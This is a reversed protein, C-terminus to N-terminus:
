KDRSGVGRRARDRWRRSKATLIQPIDSAPVLGDPKKIAFLIRRSRLASQAFSAESRFWEYVPCGKPEKSIPLKGRDNYFSGSFKLAIVVVAKTRTIPVRSKDNGNRDILSISANTSSSFSFLALTIGGTEDYSFLSPFYRTERVFSSRSLTIALHSKVFTANM